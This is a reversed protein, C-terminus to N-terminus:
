WVIKLAFYGKFIELIHWGNPILSNIDKIEREEQDLIESILKENGSNSPSDNNTPETSPINSNSSDNCATFLGIIMLVGILVIIKKM